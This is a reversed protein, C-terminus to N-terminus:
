VVSIYTIIDFSREVGLHPGELAFDIGCEVLVSEVNRTWSTAM